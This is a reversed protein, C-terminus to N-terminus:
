AAPSPRPATATGWRKLGALKGPLTILGGPLFLITLLMAISFCITEYPSGRFPESLLSLFTAGVIPGVFHGRGGVFNYVLINTAMLFSFEPPFLFRIFHAYFAGAVGAFFCGLTFALLKYNAVNVGLSQALNDALGISKWILGLRSHELKYLILLILLMLGLALYYQSAKTALVLGLLSPKPIASLGSMGRTLPVWIQAILRIVEVFAVTVMAFYVGRLRLSPYGMVVGVVSALIAGGLLSIEFPVGLKKALLASTYAGISMFASHGINLQGCTLSPRLSAALIINIFVLTFLYAYYDGTIPLCLLGLLLTALIIVMGTKHRM